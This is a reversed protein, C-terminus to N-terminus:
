LTKLNCLFSPFLEIENNDLILTELNILNSFEKPIEVINNNSFDIYELKVLECISNPIYTISSNTIELIELNKLNEGILNLSNSSLSSNNISLWGLYELNIIEDPIINIKANFFLIEVNGKESTEYFLSFDESHSFDHYLKM